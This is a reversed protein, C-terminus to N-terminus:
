GVEHLAHLMRANVEGFLVGAEIGCFESGVLKYLYNGLYGFGNSNILKQSQRVKNSMGDVAKHQRAKDGM